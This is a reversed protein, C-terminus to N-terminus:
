ITQELLSLSLVLDAAEAVGAGVGTGLLLLGVPSPGPAAVVPLLGMVPPGVMVGSVSSAPLFFKDVCAGVFVFGVVATGIDAIWIAAVDLGVTALMETAEPAVVVPTLSAVEAAAAAVELWGWAMVGATVPSLLATKATDVLTAVTCVGSAETGLLVVPVFAGALTPVVLIWFTEIPAGVVLWSDM